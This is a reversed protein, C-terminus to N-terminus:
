IGQFRNQEVKRLKRVYKERRDEGVAKGKPFQTAAAFDSNFGSDNINQKNQGRGGEQLVVDVVDGFLYDERHRCHSIVKCAYGGGLLEMVSFNVRPRYYCETVM